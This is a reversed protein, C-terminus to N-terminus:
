IRYWNSSTRYAKGYNTAQLMMAYDLRNVTTFLPVTKEITRFAKYYPISQLMMAYGLLNV